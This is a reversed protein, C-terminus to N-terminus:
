DGLPHKLAFLLLVKRILDTLESGLLTVIHMILSTIEILQKMVVIMVLQKM